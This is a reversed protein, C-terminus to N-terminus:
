AIHETKVTKVLLHNSKNSATQMQLFTNFQIQKITNHM